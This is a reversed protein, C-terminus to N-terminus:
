AVEPHCGKGGARRGIWVAQHLWASWLQLHVGQMCCSMDNQHLSPSSKVILALGLVQAHPHCAQQQAYVKEDWGGTSAWTNLNWAFPFIANASTIDYVTHHFILLILTAWQSKQPFKQRELCQPGLTWLIWIKWFCSSAFIRAQRGSTPLIWPKLQPRYASATNKQVDSTLAALALPYKPFNPGM